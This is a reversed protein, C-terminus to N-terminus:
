SARFAANTLARLDTFRWPQSPFEKQLAGILRIFPSQSSSKDTDRRIGTPLQAQELITRLNQVWSAWAQGDQQYDNAPIQATDITSLAVGLNALDAVFSGLQDALPKQSLLRLRQQLLHGVFANM